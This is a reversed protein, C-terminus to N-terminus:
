ASYTETALSVEVGSSRGQIKKPHTLCLLPSFREMGIQLRPYSRLKLTPGGDM